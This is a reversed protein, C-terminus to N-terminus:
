NSHWAVVITNQRLPTTYDPVDDLALVWAHRRAITQTEQKEPALELLWSIADDNDNTGAVASVAVFMM